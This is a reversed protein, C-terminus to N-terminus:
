GAPVSGTGAEAVARAIPGVLREVARVAACTPATDMVSLGRAAADMVAPDDPVEVILVDPLFSRVEDVDAPSQVRNAVVLADTVGLERTVYLARRAVELSKWYPETIILTVDGPKPWIWMLDNVGAELDAVVVRGRADIEGFIQRATRHSGCCLCGESPREIRGTQLMRVGDPASVGLQAVIDETDESATAHDGDHQHTHAAAKEQLLVNAVSRVAASREVGMGLAIALNPNPDADLAVVPMGSRALTRALIATITTKGVGGKGTAAVKM